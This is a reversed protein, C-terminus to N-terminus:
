LAGGTHIQVWCCRGQEPEQEARGKSHKIQFRHKIPNIISFNSTSSDQAATVQSSEAGTWLLLSKQDTAELMPPSQTLHLSFM